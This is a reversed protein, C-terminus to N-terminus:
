AVTVGEAEKIREAIWQAVIPSVSNGLARVRDVTGPLGADMGRIRGAAEAAALEAQVLGDRDLRGLSLPGAQVRESGIERRWGHAYAVIVVRFRRQPLGFAAAPLCEWEADYGIEALEGLVVDLGRVLLDAVNELVVYTPRLGRVVRVVESFLGSQEGEIGIKHKNSSSIDQCPFGACLVDVPEVCYPCPGADNGDYGHIRRVDDLRRVSPWHKELVRRCFPDIEVQWKIEFGAREFGLDFGGIGSFLSGVTLRV